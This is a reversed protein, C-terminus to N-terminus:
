LKGLHHNIVSWTEPSALKTSMSHMTAIFTPVARSADMPNPRMARLVSTRPKFIVVDTDPWAAKIQDVEDELATRGARDLLADPRLRRFRAEEDAAMPAIVIVLDLPTPNGLVLDANTGSSVGGDVYLRGGIEHPHFVVPVAASASIADRLSVEPAAITGFPVRERREIDFAVVVTARLPWGEVAPGLLHDMWDGIGRPDHRSPAGLALNIGPNRLGPLLGKRIWRGIGRLSGRRYLHTAIRNAVDDPEESDLAISSLDLREARTIAAVTAGGSTGIIVEANNPEWGTALNLAMLAAIQYSAGTIGGGGLVIGIKSM